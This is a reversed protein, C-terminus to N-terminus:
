ELTFALYSASALFIGAIIKSIRITVGGTIELIKNNAQFTLQGILMTLICLAMSPKYLLLALQRTPYYTALLAAAIFAGLGMEIITNSIFVKGSPLPRM